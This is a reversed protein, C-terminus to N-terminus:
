FKKGHLKPRTSNYQVKANIHTDIDIGLGGCLDLLRIISDAIEDEFTDKMHQKFSVEFLDSDIRTVQLFNVLEARKEKRLAEMAEGLESVVLMLMEGVNREEDWFGKAKNAEFIEKASINLGNVVNNM